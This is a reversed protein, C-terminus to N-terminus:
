YMLVPEVDDNLTLFDRLEEPSFVEKEPYFGSSKQVHWLKDEKFKLWLKRKMPKPEQQQQNPENM